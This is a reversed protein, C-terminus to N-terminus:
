SYCCKVEWNTINGLQLGKLYKKKERYGVSLTLIIPYIIAENVFHHCWNSTQSMSDLMPVTSTKTRSSIFPRRKKKIQM